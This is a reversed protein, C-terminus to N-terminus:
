SDRSGQVNYVDRVAFREEMSVSTGELTLTELVWMQRHSSSSAYFETVFTKLAEDSNLRAAERELRAVSLIYAVKAREDDSDLMTYATSEGWDDFNVNTLQNRENLRMEDNDVLAEAMTKFKVMRLQLVNLVQM